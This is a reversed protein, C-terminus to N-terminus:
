RRSGVLMRCDTRHDADYRWKFCFIGVCAGTPSIFSTLDLKITPLITACRVRFVTSLGLLPSSTRNVQVSTRAPTATRWKPLATAHTTIATLYIWESFLFLPSLSPASPRGHLPVAPSSNTTPSLSSLLARIAEASGQDLM